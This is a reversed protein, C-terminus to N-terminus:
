DTPDGSLLIDLVALLVSFLCDCLRGICTLERPPSSAM